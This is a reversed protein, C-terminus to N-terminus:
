RFPHPERGLARQFIHLPLYGQSSTLSHSYVFTMFISVTRLGKVHKTEDPQAPKTSSQEASQPLQIASKTSSVQTPEEANQLIAMDFDILYGREEWPYVGLVINNESIDRHLVGIRTLFEHGKM